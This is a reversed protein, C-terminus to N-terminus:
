KGEEVLAAHETCAPVLSITWAEDPNLERRPHGGRSLERLSASPFVKEAVEGCWACRTRHFVRRGTPDGSDLPLARPKLTAIGFCGMTSDCSVKVTEHLNDAREQAFRLAAEIMDSTIESGTTRLLEFRVCGVGLNWPASQAEM